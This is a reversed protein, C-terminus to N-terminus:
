VSPFPPGVCRTYVTQLGDELLIARHSHHLTQCPSSQKWEFHPPDTIMIVRVLSPHSTGKISTGPMGWPRDRRRPRTRGSCRTLSARKGWARHEREDSNARGLEVCEHLRYASIRDEVREMRLPIVMENDLGPVGGEFMARPQVFRTDADPRATVTDLLFVVPELWRQALIVLPCVQHNAMCTRRSAIPRSRGVFTGESPEPVMRSTRRM